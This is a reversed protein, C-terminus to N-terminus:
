KSNINKKREKRKILSTQKTKKCMVHNNTKEWARAGKFHRREEKETKKRFLYIQRINQSQPFYYFSIFLEQQWAKIQQKVFLIYYQILFYLMYFVYMSLYPLFLLIPAPAASGAAAVV